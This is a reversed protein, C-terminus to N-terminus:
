FLTYIFPAAATKALVLVVGMVLFSIILPLMWWKKSTRLFYWLEGAFGKQATEKFLREKDVQSDNDEM